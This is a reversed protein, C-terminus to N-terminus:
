YGNFITVTKSKKEKLYHAPIGIKYHKEVDVLIQRLFPGKFVM